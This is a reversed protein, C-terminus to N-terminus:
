IFLKVTYVYIDLWINQGFKGGLLRRYLNLVQVNQLFHDLSSIYGADVEGEPRSNWSPEVAASICGINWPM